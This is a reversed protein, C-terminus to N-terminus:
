AELVASRSYVREEAAAVMAKAKEGYIGGKEIKARAAKVVAVPEVGDELSSHRPDNIVRCQDLLKVAAVIDTANIMSSATAIGATRGHLSLMRLAPDSKVVGPYYELTTETALGVDVLQKSVPKVVYNYAGELEALSAVLLGMDARGKEVEVKLEIVREAMVKFTLAHVFRKDNKPVGDKMVMDSLVDVYLEMDKPRETLKDVSPMSVNLDLARLRSMALVRKLKEEADKYISTDTPTRSSKAYQSFFRSKENKLLAGHKTVKEVALSLSSEGKKLQKRENNREHEYMELFPLSMQKSVHDLEEAAALKERAPMLCAEMVATRSAEDKAPAKAANLLSKSTLMKSMKKMGNLMPRSEIKEVPKADEIAAELADIDIKELPGTECRFVELLANADTIAYDAAACAEVAPTTEDSRIKGLSEELSAAAKSLPTGDPDPDRGKAANIMEVSVAQTRAVVRKIPDWDNVDLTAEVIPMKPGDDLKGYPNDDDSPRCCACWICCAMIVLLSFAMIWEAMM